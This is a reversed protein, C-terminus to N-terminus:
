KTVSIRSMEYWGGATLANRKEQTVDVVVIFDTAGFGVSGRPLDRIFRGFIYLIGKPLAGSGLCRSAAIRLRRKDGRGDSKVPWSKSRHKRRHRTSLVLFRIASSM